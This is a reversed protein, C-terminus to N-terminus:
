KAIGQTQFCGPGGGMLLKMMTLISSGCDLILLGVAFESAHFQWMDDTVFTLVYKAKFPGSSM